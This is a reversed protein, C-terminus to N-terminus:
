KKTLCFVAYSIRMLSQLESTHEESRLRGGGDVEGPHLRPAVHDERLGDGGRQRRQAVVHHGAELVRGQRRRDGHDADEGDGLLDLAVGEPAHLGERDGADQEQEHADREGDEYSEQLLTMGELSGSGSVEDDAGSAITWMSLTTLRKPSLTTSSWSSRDTWDLSFTTIMPGDPEPLVVIRRTSIVRSRGSSPTM